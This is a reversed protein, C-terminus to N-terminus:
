QPEALHRPNYVENIEGETDSQEVSQQDQQEQQKQEQIRMQEQRWRLEKLWEVEWDALPANPDQESYATQQPYSVPHEQNQKLAALIYAEPNRPRKDATLKLIRWVDEISVHELKNRVGSLFPRDPERGFLEIFKKRFSDRFDIYAQTTLHTAENDSEIGNDYVSDYVNENESESEYEYEALNALSQKANSASALNALEQKANSAKAIGGKRGAAVRKACTDEWKKRDRDLQAAIVRYAIKVIPDLKEQEEGCVHQLIATFLAGRQEMTLDEIVDYYSNYLVFSDKKAM